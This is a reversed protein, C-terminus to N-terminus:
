KGNEKSIIYIRESDKKPEDFTFADYACVFEMGSETLLRRITEISYAKEYHVEEIREYLGTKEDEIFFNVYYENIKEDEDYYNQWIYAKNEEADSFSKNGLLNKFKYETNLDFIFYGKPELYNNVLKFVELLESEETIYNISDCLSLVIDVTGFLEFERMDQCLYLIDLNEKEAKEKAISLMESSIDIGIMDIGAKALRGTINGTGCGLEAALKQAINLRRFLNLLYSVWEDYNINDMFGDYVEAFGEYAEMNGGAIKM